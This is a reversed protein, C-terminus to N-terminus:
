AGTQDTRLISEVCTSNQEDDSSPTLVVSVDTTSERSGDAYYTHTPRCIEHSSSFPPSCSSSCIFLDRRLLLRSTVRLIRAGRREECGGQVHVHFTIHPFCMTWGHLLPHTPVADENLLLEAHILIYPLPPLAKRRAIKEQTSYLLQIPKLRGVPLVGYGRILGTESGIRTRGGGSGRKHM